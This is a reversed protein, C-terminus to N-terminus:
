GFIINTCVNYQIPYCLNMSVCMLGFGRGKNKLVDVVGVELDTSYRYEILYM